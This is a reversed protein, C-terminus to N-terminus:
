HTIGPAKNLKSSKISHYVDSLSIFDAPNSRQGLQSKSTEPLTNTISAIVIESSSSPSRLIINSNRKTLNDQLHQHQNLPLSTSLTNTTRKRMINQWYETLIVEIEKQSRKIQGDKSDLM